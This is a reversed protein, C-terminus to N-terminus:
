RSFCSSISAVFTLSISRRFRPFDRQPRPSSQGFACDGPTPHTPPIGRRVFDPSYTNSRLSTDQGSLRCAARPPKVSASATATQASLAFPIRTHAQGCPRSKRIGIADFYKGWRVNSAGDQKIRATKSTGVVVIKSISHVGFKLPASVSRRKSQNQTKARPDSFM